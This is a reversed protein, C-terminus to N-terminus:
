VKLRKAMMEPNMAHSIATEATIIGDQYLKHISTDMSIMNQDASTSIVGDIQHIKGERIMNRIAPTLIM